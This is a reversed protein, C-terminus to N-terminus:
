QRTGISVGERGNHQYTLQTTSLDDPRHAGVHAALHYLHRESTLEWWEPSRQLGPSKRLSYRVEQFAVDEDLLSRPSWLEQVM